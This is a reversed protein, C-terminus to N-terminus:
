LEEDQFAMVSEGGKVVEHSLSPAKSLIHDSYFHATKVKTAYFREDEHVHGDPSFAIAASKGLIWGGSVTGFLMLYPVSGAFSQQLNQKLNTLLWQTTESFIQVNKALSEAISKCQSNGTTNLAQVTKNFEDILALMAKGNDHLLKRGLLDNAQIATTGEYITTIRADRYYQAAGTEEIFGMGGHVQVGISAVEQGVETSWGKVIPVLLEARQREATKINPDPHRDGNDLCAACYFSLARTAEAQAKMTLLMRKVDPHKIIPVRPGGKKGLETGQLRDKAYYLAHQYAREAISVGELGVAFRALNMMIFMYELGRNEEGILYGIAGDKDGYQLTCTPSAHIGLKHEISICQVDNREGLSGDDNVLVKPVIFLSLGKVGEPANVTRALVMHIINPTLDHEGYTIFIKQGQIRYHDGEPTAKTKVAALDSGAQSETLNMTGTWEGSVMKPLFKRKQADSGVLQIAEIAGQTLMPCLSFALNASGIMEKVPASVFSPMGQGGYDPDASISTWGGQVLQQYANKLGPATTVQGDKWQSGVKDGQRNIPALVNSSFKACEKLIANLVDPTIEECGPLDKIRDLGIVEYLLFQIDKLPAIYDAM